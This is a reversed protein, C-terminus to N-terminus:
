FHVWRWAVTISFPHWVRRHVIKRLFVGVKNWLVTIKNKKKASGAGPTAKGRQVGREVGRYGMITLGTKWVLQIINKTVNLCPYIINNDFINM